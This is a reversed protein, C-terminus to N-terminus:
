LKQTARRGKRKWKMENRSDLSSNTKTTSQMAHGDTQQQQWIITVLLKHNAKEKTDSSARRWVFM